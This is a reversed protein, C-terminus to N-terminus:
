WKQGGRSFIKPFDGVPGGQFFDKRRGHVSRNMVSGNKASGREYCVLEYRNM